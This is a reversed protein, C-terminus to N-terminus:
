KKINLLLYCTQRFALSASAKPLLTVQEQVMGSNQFLKFDFVLEDSVQKLAGDQQFINRKSM